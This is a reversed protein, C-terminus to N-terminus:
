LVKISGSAGTPSVIFKNPNAKTIEVVPGGDITDPSDVNFDASTVKSGEYRHNATGQPLFEVTDTAEVYYPTKYYLKLGITDLSATTNISSPPLAFVKAFSVAVGFSSSTYIGIDQEPNGYYSSTLRYNPSGTYVDYEGVPYVDSTAFANNSQSLYNMGNSEYNKVLITNSIAVKPPNTITVGSVSFPLHIRCGMLISESPFTFGYNRGVIFNGVLGSIPNDAYVDDPSGTVNNINFWPVDGLLGISQTVEKCYEWGTEHTTYRTIPNNLSSSISHTVTNYVGPYIRNDMITPTLGEAEYYPIEAKKLQYYVTTKVSDVYVYHTGAGSNQAKFTAYLGGEVNYIIERLVEATTGWRETPGGYSRTVGGNISQSTALDSPFFGDDNALRVSYDYMRDNKSASLHYTCEIGMIDISESPPLSAKNIGDFTYSLLKKSYAGASLYASTYKNDFSGTANSLITWDTGSGNNVPLVLPYGSVINSYFSDVSYVAPNVSLSLSIHATPLNDYSGSINDAPYLSMSAENLIFSGTPTPNIQSQDLSMSYFPEEWTMQDIVRDKSRELINPEILVGDLKKTRAPLLQEIQKFLSMDYQYIMRLYENYNNRDSYKKWYDWSLSKLEPYDNEYVSDPAGIYDDIEFFGLQNFIDENISNQPSFYIGLRPSDVPATDYTSKEKRTDTNLFGTLTSSEARVKESWLNNGGMSPNEIYYTEDVGYFSSQSVFGAFSASTVYGGEFELINQNPHQSMLSSSISLDFKQRLPIRFRLQQYSSTISNGDYASPSTVHNAFDEEDLPKAWYRIEQYSGSFHSIGSPNDGWGIHVKPVSVTGASDPRKWAHNYSYETAGNIAISASADTTLKSYKHKKLFVTYSNNSGTIDTSTDRRVMLGAWNGDFLYEDTISGTKYGSSGSLYFNLNGKQKNSGSPVATVYWEPRPGFGGQLVTVGSISEKLGDKTRFRLELTDPTKYSGTKVPLWASSIYQGGNVRLAYSYDDKVYVPKKTSIPLKPGGYERISLLTQPIGYCALLAKVSRATGKTKLLFPLNNVIRRWIEKTVQGRPKSEVSGTQQTAGAQNTGLTYEWLDTTNNGLSLNWGMSKAVNFLLENAMGETPHEERTITKNLHSIYTWLIDFHHGMMNVFVDYQENGSDVRIHEPITKVLSSDNYKDYLSASSIAANYWNTSISSTVDYLTYPKIAPYTDVVGGQQFSFNANSWQQQAQQWTLPTTVRSDPKKPWPHISCSGFTFTGSGSQFYLYNEFDDFGSIIENRKKTTVTTNDGVSGTYTNISTLTADYQEILELKYKFNKIREEASSFHVFNEFECYDINLKIGSLSGSFYTDILQQSTSVGSGLLQNWTKFDTETKLRYDTVIDFNPGKVNNQLVPVPAGIVKINDIYPSSVEDAIWSEDGIEIDDSLPEYLRIVITTETDTTGDVLWNVATATLDNGFNVIFDVDNIADLTSLGGTYNSFDDVPKLRIEKRSPSIETLALKIGDFSGIINKYFNLSFKYEGSLLGLDRVAEHIDFYYNRVISDTVDSKPKKKKYEANHNSTIYNGDIDYVHFEILENENADFSPTTNEYKLVLLDKETLRDGRTPQTSVLISDINKYDKLM